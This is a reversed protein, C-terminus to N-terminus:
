SVAPSAIDDRAASRYFALLPITSRSRSIDSRSLCSATWWPHVPSAGSSSGPLVGTLFSPWGAIVRSSCRSAEAPNSAALFPPSGLKIVLFFRPAWDPWRPEEQLSRVSPVTTNRGSSHPYQPLASRTIVLVMGFLNRSRASARCLVTESIYTIRTPCHGPHSIRVIGCVSAMGPVDRPGRM